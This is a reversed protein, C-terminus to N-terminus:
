GDATGATTNTEAATPKRLSTILESARSHRVSGTSLQSVLAQAHVLQAQPDQAAVAEQLALETRRWGSTPLSPLLVPLAAEINLRASEFQRQRSGCRALGMKAAALWSANAPNDGVVSAIQAFAACASKEDGNLFDHNAQQLEVRRVLPHADGLLAVFAQKAAILQKEAATVRGMESLVTGHNFVVSIALMKQASIEAVLAAARDLVELAGSFDGLETRVRGLNNLVLALEPHEGGLRSQAEQLLVEFAAEAATLNGALFEGSAVGSMARVSLPHQPGYAAEYIAYADRNLQLVQSNNGQAAQVAALSAKSDAISVHDAPLVQERIMLTEEHLQQAKQRDGLRSTAVALNILADAAQPTQRGSQTTYIQLAQEAQQQAREYAGNEILANALDNHTQAVLEHTPGFQARRGALSEELLAVAREYSGNGLYAVGLMHQLEALAKPDDALDQRYRIDAYQLLDQVTKESKWAGFPNAADFLSQLFTSVREARAAEARAREAQVTTAIGGSVIASLLLGTSAVGLRHRRLFKRVAYTQSPPHALLPEHNQFRRLDAQMQAVSGYRQTPEFAVAKDVILDLEANVGAMSSAASVPTVEMQGVRQALSAAVAGSHDVPVRGTLLRYLLAGLAYLDSLASVPEGRAQEPSAYNPTLALVAAQESESRNLVTAIGFDLLKPEGSTAVLVNDPKLDGHVVLQSHAFAVAGLLTDFLRLREFLGLQQQECYNAIDTGAVYEMVFYPSGQETLGGDLLRAINAHELRALIQREALFREGAASTLSRGPLVKLAVTQEFAGDAREALYVAGMGGRGLLQHTKYRGIRQGTLDQAQDIQEGLAQVVASAAAGSLQQDWQTQEAANLLERLEAALDPQTAAIADLQQIRAEGDLDLLDTLRPELEEWSAM